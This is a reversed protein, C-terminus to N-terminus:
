PTPQDPPKDAVFVRVGPVGVVYGTSKLHNIAERVPTISCEYIVRLQAATPLQAGPALVGTRIQRVIDDIIQQRKSSTPVTIERTRLAM